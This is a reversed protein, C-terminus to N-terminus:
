KGQLVEKALDLVPDISKVAENWDVSAARFGSLSFAGPGAATTPRVPITSYPTASLAAETAPSVLWDYLRRANGPHPAGRVVSVTVPLVYTGPRGEAQDPFVAAVPDGALRRVHFDDTDTFGFAKGGRGVERAVAGNGSAFATDNAGADRFWRAFPEPGLLARLAALHSLTTGALPRALAGKGKWAPDALDAYSSPGAAATLDRNVIYVRARLGNATWFGKPDRWAAPVDRAAPSDYAELIGEAALRVTWLPENNWFVDARPSKGPAGEERLLTALGVTKTAESDTVLDVRIGTEKEFAPLLAKAFEEDIATYLVVGPPESPPRLAYWLGAAVLALLVAFPLARRLM